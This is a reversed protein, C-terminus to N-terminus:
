KYVNVSDNPFFVVNKCIQVMAESRSIRTFCLEHDSYIFKKVKIIFSQLRIDCDQIEGLSEVGDWM